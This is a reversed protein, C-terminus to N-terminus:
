KVGGAKIKTKLQEIGDILGTPSVPCGAIYVDVPVIRDVGKVVSYSGAYCGGSNACSGMAIVYKPEPMQDYVTRLAKAMKNTVTGAVIMVDAQRPSNRFIVGMRDLDYRAAGTHMMELACCSLGFTVPWLSSSRAWNILDSYKSLVFGSSQLGQQLNDLEAKHDIKDLGLRASRKEM